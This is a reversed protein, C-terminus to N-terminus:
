EDEEELLKKLENRIIDGIEEKIEETIEKKMEEPDQEEIELEQEDTEAMEENNELAQATMQQEGLTTMFGMAAALEDDSLEGEQPPMMEEPQTQEPEM